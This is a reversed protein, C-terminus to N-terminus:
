PWCGAVFPGPHAAARVGRQDLVQKAKTSIRPTMKSFLPSMHHVTLRHKSKKLGMQNDLNSTKCWNGTAGHCGSRTLPSCASVVVDVKM